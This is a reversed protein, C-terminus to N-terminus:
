INNLFRLSYQQILGYRTQYQVQLIDNSQKQQAEVSISTQWHLSFHFVPTLIGKM